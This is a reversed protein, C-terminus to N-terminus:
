YDWLNRYRTLSEIYSWLIEKYNGAMQEASVYNFSQPSYGGLRVKIEEMLEVVEPFSLPNIYSDLIYRFYAMKDEKKFEECLQNLVAPMGGDTGSLAMYVANDFGISADLFKRAKDLCIGYQTSIAGTTERLHHVMYAILLNVFEQYSRVTSSQLTCSARANNHPTETKEIIVRPNLHQMIENYRPM